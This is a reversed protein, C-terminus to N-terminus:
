RRAWEMRRCLAARGTALAASAGSTEAAVTCAAPAKEDGAPGCPAPLLHRPRPRDLRQGRDARVRRRLRRRGAHRYLARGPHLARRAQQEAHPAKGKQRERFRWATWILKAAENRTLWRERGVPKEPLTVSVIRDCHGEERHFNIAARLM